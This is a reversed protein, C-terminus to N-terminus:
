DFGDLQTVTKIRPIRGRLQLLGVGPRLVPGYVEGPKGINETLKIIFVPSLSNTTVFKLPATTKFRASTATFLFQPFCAM